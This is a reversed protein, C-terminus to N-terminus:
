IRKRNPFEYLGLYHDKISTKTIKLNSNEMIKLLVSHARSFSCFFTENSLKPKNDKFYQISTKHIELEKHVKEEILGYNEVFCSFLIRWDNSNAYGDKNLSVERNKIDKALGVKIIKRQISGAIYIFGDSSHRAQFAVRETKCVLCHNNRDRYTHGQYCPITNFAYIAGVRRMDNEIRSIQYGKADFILRREIKHRKLFEDLSPNEKSASQTSDKSKKSGKKEKQIDRLKILDAASLVILKKKM